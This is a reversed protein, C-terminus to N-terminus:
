NRKDAVDSADVCVKQRMVFEGFASFRRAIM